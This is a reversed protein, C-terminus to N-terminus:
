LIMVHKFSTQFFDPLLLALLVRLLAALLCSHVRPVGQSRSDLISPIQQHHVAQHDVEVLPDAFVRTPRLEEKVVDTFILGFIKFSDAMTLVRDVLHPVHSHADQLIRNM